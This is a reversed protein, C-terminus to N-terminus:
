QKGQSIDVDRAGLRVSEGDSARPSARPPKDNASPGTTSNTSPVGTSGVSGGACRMLTGSTSPASAKSVSTVVVVLVLYVWRGGVSEVPVCVSSDRVCTGSSALGGHMFFRECM